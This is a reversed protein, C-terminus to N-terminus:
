NNVTFIHPAVLLEGITGLIQKLARPAGRFIWVGCQMTGTSSPMMKPGGGEM